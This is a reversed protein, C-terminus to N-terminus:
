PQTPPSNSPQGPSTPSHSTPSHSPSDGPSRLCNAACKAACLSGCLAGGIAAGLDVIMAFFAIIAAQASRRALVEAAHEVMLQADEKAEEYRTLSADWVRQWQEMTAQAAAVPIGLQQALLDRLEGQEAESMPKPDLSFAQGLLQMLRSRDAFRDDAAAQEEDADRREIAGKLEEKVEDWSPTVAETIPGAVAGIGQTAGSIGLGLLSFAGGALVGISVTTLLLTGIGTVAWVLMGHIAAEGPVRHCKMRGTVWAGVFISVLACLLLVAVTGVGVKVASSLPDTSEFFALGSAICLATLAIQIAIATTVGAIIAAWSIWLPNPGNTYPREPLPPIPAYAPM